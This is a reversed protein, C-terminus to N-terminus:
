ADFFWTGENLLMSIKWILFVEGYAPYDLPSSVHAPQTNNVKKGYALTCHQSHLKLGSFPNLSSDTVRGTWTDDGM